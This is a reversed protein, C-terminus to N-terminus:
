LPQAVMDLCSQAATVNRIWSRTLDLIGGLLDPKSSTFHPESVLVPGFDIPDVHFKTFIGFKPHFGYEVSALQRFGDVEKLCGLLVAKTFFSRLGHDRMMCVSMLNPFQSRIGTEFFLVPELTSRYFQVWYKSGKDSFFTFDGESYSVNGFFHIKGSEEEPISRGVHGNEPNTLTEFFLRFLEEIEFVPKSSKM